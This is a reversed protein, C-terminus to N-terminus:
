MQYKSRCEKKHLFKPLPPLNRSTMLACARISWFCLLAEQWYLEHWSRFYKYCECAEPLSLTSHQGVIKCMGRWHWIIWKWYCNCSSGLLGAHVRGYHILCVQENWLPFSGGPGHARNRTQAGGVPWYREKWSRVETALTLSVFWVGLHSIWPFILPPPCLPVFLGQHLSLGWIERSGSPLM